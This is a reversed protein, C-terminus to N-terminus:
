LRSSFSEFYASAYAIGILLWLIILCIMSRIQQRGRFLGAVMSFTDGLTNPAGGHHPHLQESSIIFASRNIKSIKNISVVAENLKGQSILWKPSESMNLVFSRLISMVLCLCGIIIYLYRWGMNDSKTCTAPTAGDPCCFNAVLPWALIETLLINTSEIHHLNGILGTFTNGLGWLCALASLLFGWKRPLSEALVTLDIAVAHDNACTEKAISLFV